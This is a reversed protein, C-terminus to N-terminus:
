KKGRLKFIIKDPVHFIGRRGKYELPQAYKISHTLVWGFPGFFWQNAPKDIHTIHHTTIVEGLLVGRPSKMAERYQEPTVLDPHVRLFRAGEWDISKSAHIVLPGRYRITWTRNEIDKIGTVILYAWPQKISIARM